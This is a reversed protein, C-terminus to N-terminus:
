PLALGSMDCNVCIFEGKLFPTTQGFLIHVFGPSILLATIGVPVWNQCKTFQSFWEMIVFIGVPVYMVVIKECQSTQEPVWGHSFGMEHLFLTWSGPRFAVMGERRNWKGKYWDKFAQGTLLTEYFCPSQNLWEERGKEILFTTTGYGFSLWYTIYWQCAIFDNCSSIPSLWVILQRLFIEWNCYIFYVKLM